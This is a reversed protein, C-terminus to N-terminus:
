GCGPDPADVALPSGAPDVYTVYLEVQARGLNRGIHVHRAGPPEVLSQGARYTVAHCQEDTRTLEGKSVVALLTGPHYHWGTSGGPSIVLHRAVFDAPGHTRLRFDKEMRGTALVEGTVGDGPTAQVAVPLLVFGAAYLALATVAVRKGM